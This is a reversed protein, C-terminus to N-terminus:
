RRAGKAVQHVKRAHAKQGRKAKTPRPKAKRKVKPKPKVAPKPEENTMANAVGTFTSSSFTALTPPSLIAASCGEGECAGTPPPAPFGVKEGPEHPARIDYLDVLQDTDQPVLQARTIFFVDNGNESADVFSASSANMGSSLLYVHGNEYEYVDEQGNTDQPVLADASDFFVRSGALGESLVRSQYLASGAAFKTGGPIGSPGVPRTGSPNCSVCALRGSNAEYLFVEECQAPLLHGNFDKGCSNGTSVTNDYGTLGQESMFVLRMGDRSVRTTRVGVESSWDFAVGLSNFASQGYEDNESLAAIFKTSEGEHWLYLNYNGRTAGSALAGTAVFYVYSGDESAGLVGRVEAGGVDAKDVTLDLLRGSQGNGPEFEYLDGFGGNSATSDATLKNRDAFFIKSGDSSATLFRGEGDPADAQITKAQQTGIGDRAYLAAGGTWIVTSGDDSIAHGTANGRGGLLLGAEPYPAGDPLINVPQFLGTAREWDYLNEKSQEEIAGVGLATPSSVVVHSLDPTVGLLQLEFEEPPVSLTHGILPQLAGGAIEDLYYNKYGAPGALPPNEVPRGGAGRVGGLVLGSSLGPSFADYPTGAGAIAYTQANLPTSINQTLWGKAVDRSAVYQSGIAAGQPDGFSALSVYTIKEGNPSAQVVGGGSDGDIGRIGGGNKDLPSVMEWTRGDPLSARTPGAAYLLLGAMVLLITRWSRGAFKGVLWRAGSRSERFM